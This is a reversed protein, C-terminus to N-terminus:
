PTNIDRSFINWFSVFLAAILPGVVFGNIGMLSLGGLTSFLVMYDPLKTDRGVLIPRLVNDALGIIIAGYAVLISAPVWDGTAYLYIAVPGWVLSAGVAPILSLFGMAVAWLVPAPIDLLWFIFGGLAGQVLAVVLNGKITARTVEVFKQFLLQNREADLPVAQQIWHILRDGDRLLFFILYLMMLLRLTFAATNRAFGLAEQGVFQSLNVAANSLYQRVNSTDIGFRQLLEPIIPLAAGIEEMFTDPNIERDEILQYLQIGEQVFAFVIAVAPLIVLLCGLLLTILAALSHRGKLRLSLHRQVPFFLMSLVCAWFIAGWFPKMLWGFLLSVTVLLALFSRQELVKRM